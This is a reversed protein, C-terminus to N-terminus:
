SARRQAWVRPTYRVVGLVLLGHSVAYTGMIVIQRGDFDFGAFSQLAILSDSAIFLAGGLWGPWGFATALSATMLLALAYIVLAPALAGAEPLCWALVLVAVLLYPILAAPRRWVASGRRLPWLGTIWAIHALLFSGLMLPLKWEEAAFQPLTDGLFSFGLAVLTCTRLRGPKATLVVLALVPMLLIQTPVSIWRAGIALAGLHVAVVLAYLAWRPTRGTM